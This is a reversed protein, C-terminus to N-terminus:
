EGEYFKGGKKYHDSLRWARCKTVIDCDLDEIYKDNLNCHHPEFDYHQCTICMRPIPKRRDPMM